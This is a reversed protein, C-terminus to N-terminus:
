GLWSCIQDELLKARVLVFRYLVPNERPLVESAFVLWRAAQRGASLGQISRM